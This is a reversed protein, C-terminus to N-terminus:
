SKPKLCSLCKPDISDDEEDNEDILSANVEEIPDIDGASKVSSAVDDEQEEELEDFKPGKNSNDSRMAWSGM